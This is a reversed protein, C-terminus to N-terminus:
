IRDNLLGTLFGDEFPASLHFCFEAGFRRDSKLPNCPM